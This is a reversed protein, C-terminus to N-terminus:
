APATIDITIKSVRRLPFDNREVKFNVQPSPAQTGVSKLLASELEPITEATIVYTAVNYEIRTRITSEEMTNQAKEVVTSVTLDTALYCVPLNMGFFWGEVLEAYNSNLFKM